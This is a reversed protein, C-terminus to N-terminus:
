LPARCCDDEISWFFSGIGDHALKVVTAPRALSYAAAEFRTRSKNHSSFRRIPEYIRSRFPFPYSVAHLPEPMGAVKALRGHQVRGLFFKTITASTTADFNPRSGNVQPNFPNTSGPGTRLSYMRQKFSASSFLLLM